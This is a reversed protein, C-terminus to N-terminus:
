AVQRKMMRAFLGDEDKMLSEFRGEQVAKGAELVLIRDANRITSLRHAIVVRTVSLRELSKSVIAQTRNDLASTAEDFLLVKPRQVLARAILLRQRQGGSLNGGGMSIITYMGMPMRRVDDALGADEAAAWAQDLTIVSGGGINDFVTGADLQGSQLVVGLQRRVALVDVSSLDQDDYTITGSDPTEFGLLLRMLTSKGSGSPGVVAVFEGPRAHFSVGQLIEPGDEDYRFRVDHLAIDGSLRGPDAKEADVEVPEELIPQIRRGRVISDMFGVATNTLMTIGALFTAYAASFALFIGLSMGSANGSGKLLGHAFLYLLILSITPLMHNFLAVTDGLRYNRSTLNMQRGYSKTWHNFARDGAGGVRLKGVGNILQVELGYRDGQIELLERMNRRIFYSVTSTVVITVAALGVAVMSLMPSYYYLLGLNLVALFGAFLSSLTAGSLENGIDDVAMVRSQLDGSTFRRFFSPRLRLLRDWVAAQTEAESGVQIRVLYFGQALQFVVRAITMCLLVAGIEILLRQNADPIAVDMLLATAFPVIMGLGTVIAGVILVMVLDRGRGVLGFRVLDFLGLKGERLPRYPFIAEPLIETARRATLRKRSHDAPDFVVYHSRERILALPKRDELTFGLLSGCDRKWWKGALVVRRTRIRSARAIAEIPDYSNNGESAPAPRIQVGLSDGVARMAVLLPDGADELDARKAELASKPDLAAALSRLAESTRKAQLREMERLREVELAAESKIELNLLSLVVSDLRGLGEGLERADGLSGSRRLTLRSPEVASLWLPGAVPFCAAEPNVLLDEAGLARLSGEIMKAWRVNDRECALIEGEILELAGDAEAKTTLKPREPGKFCGVLFRVWPDVLAELQAGTSEPDAWLKELELERLVTRETPVLLFRLGDPQSSPTSFLAKGSGLKALFRRSGVVRGAKVKVCYLAVAGSEVFRVLRDEGLLVPTNGTLGTSPASLRSWINQTM